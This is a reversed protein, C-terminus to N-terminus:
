FRFGGYKSIHNIYITTRIHQPWNRVFVLGNMYKSHSKIPVCDTCTLIQWSKPTECCVYCLLTVNLRLIPARKWDFCSSLFQDRDGRESLSREVRERERERERSTYLPFVVLDTDSPSALSLHQPSFHLRLPFVRTAKNQKTKINIRYIGQRFLPWQKYLFNM